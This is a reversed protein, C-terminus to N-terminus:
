RRSRIPMQRRGQEVVNHIFEPDRALLSRFSSADVAQISYTVATNIVQGGMASNPVITGAQKPMFMEPGREGVMYASGPNVPGGTARFGGFLSSLFGGSSIGGGGFLGALAKKAQIRAFDAILSNALDKFSLKGTQVFRVIADEFGKTFTDFYTKSQTAAIEADGKYKAFAENWGAAWTRSVALDALRAATLAQQQVTIKGLGAALEASSEATLGDENNFKAAFAQQLALGAKRGDEEIVKIQKQYETLGILGRQFNLDVRQDNLKRLSEGLINQRDIQDEISKIIGENTRRRDEEILRATDLSQILGPLLNKQEDYLKNTDKVQKNIVGIRGSLEKAGNSDRLGQPIKALEAGLKASEDTLKKVADRRQIDLDFLEKKINKDTESIRVLEDNAYILSTELAIRDRQTKLTNKLAETQQKAELSVLAMKQALLQQQYAANASAAKTDDLGTVQDELKLKFDAIEKGVDSNTDGFTKFKEILEDIGLYGAVAGGIAVLASGVVALPKLLYSIVEGLFAWRGTLVTTSKTLAYITEILTKSTAVIQGFAGYLAIAGTVLARIVRVAVIAGAIAGLVKFFTAISDIVPNINEKLNYIQAAIYILANAFARGTGTNKEFENFLIGASTKISEFGQAITPDTRGFAENISDRAKLIADIVVQASIVGQSGLKKLAGVPVGLSDALAKSVPTLGELISRLEDGQFVGSQLGQGFQLLPGAAEAASQGSASLAKALLSTVEAAQRQSIGLEGASRQIRYFLDATAGLPSRAQLAIASITQFQKNVIELDPTLSKLRNNLSTISDAFLIIERTALAGILGTVASKLSNLSAIAGKTDVEVNFRLDAAM